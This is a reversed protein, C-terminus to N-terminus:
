IPIGMGSRPRGERMMGLILFVGLGALLGATISVGGIGKLRWLVPGAMAGVMRGVASAALFGSLLTGRSRPLVETALSLTCVISFEYILFCIFVGTLAAALHDSFLPLALYSLSTLAVGFGVARKLGLRDSLGAVLFEGGLEAAGIVMTSLGLATLNLHFHTEMWVGYIIFVMENAVSATFALGLIGLGKSEALLSVIPFRIHRSAKLDESSRRSLLFRRVLAIGLLACIALTLFPARWGFASILAGILPVGVLTSGAWSMELAGIAKGRRDFPIERGVYALLAPDFVSKAIGALIVACFVAAYGSFIGGIWMGVALVSLAGLMMRRYGWRDGIPGFVLSLIGSMQNMAIMSTVATLSAGLHRSLEPAFPYVFRKATNLIIRCFFAAGLGLILSHRGPLSASNM